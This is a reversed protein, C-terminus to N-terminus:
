VVGWRQTRGDALRYLGGRPAASTGAWLAGDTARLLATVPAEPIERDLVLRRRQEPTWPPPGDFQLLGGSGALWLAPVYYSRIAYM